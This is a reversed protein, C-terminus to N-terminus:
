SFLTNWLIKRADTMCHNTHLNRDQEWICNVTKTQQLKLLTLLVTMPMLTLSDVIVSHGGHLKGEDSDQGAAGWRDKLCSWVQLLCGPTANGRCHYLRYTTSRESVNHTKTDQKEGWNFSAPAYQKQADCTPKETTQGHNQKDTPKDCLITWNAEFLSWFTGRHQGAVNQDLDLDLICFASVGCCHEEATGRNGRQKKFTSHDLVSIHWFPKKATVGCCIAQYVEPVPWLKRIRTRISSHRASCTKKNKWTKTRCHEWSDTSHSSPLIRGASLGAGAIVLPKVQSFRAQGPTTATSM